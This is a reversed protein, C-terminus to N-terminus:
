KKYNRVPLTGQADAIVKCIEEYPEDVQVNSSDHCFLTAHGDVTPSVGTVYDFNVLIEVAEVHVRIFRM